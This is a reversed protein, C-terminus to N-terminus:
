TTGRRLCLAVRQMTRNRAAKHQAREPQRERLLRSHFPRQSVRLCARSCCCAQTAAAVFRRGAARGAVKVAEQGASRRPVSAAERAEEEEEKQRNKLESVTVLVVAPSRTQIFFPIAHMRPAPCVQQWPM